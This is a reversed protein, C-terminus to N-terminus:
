AKTVVQRGPLQELVERYVAQVPEVGLHRELKRLGFHYRAVTNFHGTFATNIVAGTALGIVPLSQALVKESVVVDFRAAVRTLFRALLPAATGAMQEVFTRTSTRSLAAAADRILAAMALRTAFYTSEFADDGPNPGGYSFISLCELRVAPDALDAGYSGAIAAISRFMISTTVPLEVALGPLGFMGGGGGTVATAVKHWFGTRTARAHAERFDVDPHARSGVTGLALDMAKSLATNVVEKVKDPVVRRALAEMPQGVAAALRMLYSPNELYRVAQRIFQVDRDTLTAPAIV